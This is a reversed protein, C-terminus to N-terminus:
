FGRELILERITGINQDNEQFTAQIKKISHIDQGIYKEIAESLAIMEKEIVQQLSDHELLYPSQKKQHFHMSTPAYSFFDGLVKNDLYTLSKIHESKESISHFGRVQMNYRFSLGLILLGLFLFLSFSALIKSRFSHLM